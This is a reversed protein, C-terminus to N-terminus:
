IIQQPECAQMVKDIDIRGDGVMTKIVHKIETIADFGDCVNNMMNDVNIININILSADHNIQLNSSILVDQLDRILYTGKREAARNTFMQSVATRFSSTDNCDVCLWKVISDSMGEIDNTYLHIYFRIIRMALDQDVHRVIGYDYLGLQLKDRTWFINGPHLDAHFVRSIVLSEVMFEAIEKCKIRIQNHEGRSECEVKLGLLDLGDIYEMVIMTDDCLEKYLWPIVIKDKYAEYMAEWNRVENGMDVQHELIDLILNALKSTNYNKWMGFRNSWDVIWTLMKRANVCDDLVTPRLVKIAVLKDQYTGRYVCAVSGSAFPKDDLLNLGKTSLEIEDIKPVEGQCNQQLGELAKVVNPSFYHFQLSLVQGVKIFMPGLNELKKVLMPGRKKEPILKM